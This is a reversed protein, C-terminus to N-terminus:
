ICWESVDGCLHRVSVCVCVCVCYVDGQRLLLGAGRLTHGLTPLNSLSLFVFIAESRSSSGSFHELAMTFNHTLMVVVEAAAAAGGGGGGGWLGGGGGGM